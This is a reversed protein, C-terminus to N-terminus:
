LKKKKRTQPDYLRAEPNGYQALLEKAQKEDNVHFAYSLWKNDKEIDFYLALTNM